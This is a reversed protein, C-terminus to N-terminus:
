PRVLADASRQSVFEERRPTKANLPLECDQDTKGPPFPSDSNLASRGFEGCKPEIETVETQRRNLCVPKNKKVGVKSTRFASVSGSKFLLFRLSRLASGSCPCASVNIHQRVFSSSNTPM